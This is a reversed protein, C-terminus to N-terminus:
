ALTAEARLQRVNLLPHDGLTSALMRQGTGAWAEEGCPIWETLSALALSDKGGQYSLPYRSPLLVAHHEGSKLTLRAPLWVLDRLDVPADIELQQIAEFPVWCYQGNLFLECVPGLRSDADAIWATAQGDISFAAETAGEFAQARLEDANAAEGRGLCLLSQALWDVWAVPQLTPAQLEGKFVRERIRECRIAERYAQAMTIASAELQAAAQLQGVAREWDGMVMCLQAYHVRLKANGPAQRISSMLGAAQESLPIHFLNSGIHSSM